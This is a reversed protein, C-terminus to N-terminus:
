CGANSGCQSVHGYCNVWSGGQYCVLYGQIIAGCSYCLNAYKCMCSTSDLNSLPQSSPLIENLSLLEDDYSLCHHTYETADSEGCRVYTSNHQKCIQMFHQDIQPYCLLALTSGLLILAVLFRM